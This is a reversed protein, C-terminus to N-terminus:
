IISNILSYTVEHNGRQTIQCCGWLRQKIVKDWPWAYLTWLIDVSGKTLSFKDGLVLLSNKELRLDIVSHKEQCLSGSM